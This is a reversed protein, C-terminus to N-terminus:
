MTCFELKDGTLDLIIMSCDSSPAISVAGSCDDNVPQTFAILHISSLFLIILSVRM